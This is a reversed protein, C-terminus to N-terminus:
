FEADTTRTKAFLADKETSSNLLSDRDMVQAFFADREVINLVPLAELVALGNQIWITAAVARPVANTIEFLQIGEPLEEADPIFPLSPVFSQHDLLRVFNFRTFISRGAPLDEAAADPIFPLPHVFSQNIAPTIEFQTATQQGPPIDEAPADPIFSLPHVFSRNVVGLVEPKINVSQGPPLDEAADSIFSLPKVFSENIVHIPERRTTVQQGSPLAEAGPILIAPLVFSQNVTIPELRTTALTKGPPLPNTRPYYTFIRLQRVHPVFNSRTFIPRGAPLDEPLPADSIFPLPHVFTPNIVDPIEARTSISTGPPLDEAVPQVTGPRHIRLSQVRIPFGPRVFTQKGEPLEQAVVIEQVIGFLFPQLPSLLADFRVFARQGEPLDERDALLPKAAGHVFTQHHRPRQRDRDALVIRTAGSPPAEPPATPDIAALTPQVARPEQEARSITAHGEPLAEPAAEEPKAGVLLPPYYEHLKDLQVITSRGEPSAQLVAAVTLLPQIVRVAQVPQVVASQGEPLAEAAAAAPQRFELVSRDRIAEQAVDPRVIRAQGPPLAEAAVRIPRRIRLSQVETHPFRRTIVTQGPPLEAAPAAEPERFVLWAQLLQRLRDRGYSYIM